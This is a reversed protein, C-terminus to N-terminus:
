RNFNRSQLNRAAYSSVASPPPALKANEISLFSSRSPLKCDRRPPDEHKTEDKLVSGSGNSEGKMNRTM